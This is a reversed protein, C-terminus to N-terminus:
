EALFELARRKHYPLAHCGVSELVRCSAQTRAQLCAEGAARTAMSKDQDFEPIAAMLEEVPPTKGEVADELM